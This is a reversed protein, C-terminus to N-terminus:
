VQVIIEKDSQRILFEFDGNPELPLQNQFNCAIHHACCEILNCLDMQIGPLLHQASQLLGQYIFLIISTYCYASLIISPIISM